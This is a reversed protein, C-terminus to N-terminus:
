LVKLFQVFSENTFSGFQTRRMFDLAESGTKRELMMYIRASILSTRNLGKGGHVLIPMNNRISDLAFTTVINLHEISPAETESMFWYMYYKIDLDTPNIIGDIDILATVGNDLMRQYDNTSEIRPSQYLKNPIVEVINMALFFGCKFNHPVARFPYRM